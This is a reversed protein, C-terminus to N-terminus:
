AVSPPNVPSEALAQMLLSRLGEHAAAVANRAGPLDGQRCAAIVDLFSVPAPGAKQALPLLVHWYRQGQDTVYRILSILFPQDCVGYFADLFEDSLRKWEAPDGTASRARYVQEARDLAEPTQHAFARELAATHLLCSVASMEAAEAASLSQVRAGRYPTISVFGEKELQRLADRLPIRSIGFRKALEDLRLLDGAPIIGRCIADRIV